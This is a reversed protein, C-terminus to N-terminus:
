KRLLETFFILPLLKEEIKSIFCVNNFHLIKKNTEYTNTLICIYTLIVFITSGEIYM